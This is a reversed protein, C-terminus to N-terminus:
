YVQFASIKSLEQLFFGVKEGVDRREIDILPM